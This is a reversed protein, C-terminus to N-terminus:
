RASASLRTREESHRMWLELIMLNWLITGYFSTRDTAHARVLHELSGKEFFGRQLSRPSLVLERMLENLKADTRLWVPIPLGFGHKTKTLIEQPLLDAYADKFFSRLRRGRMRIESPIRSAFEVLHHDLFPFRVLVGNAETMRTVKFLDNDSIALKLDLYLQRDLATRGRAREYHFHMAWFPNYSAEATRLFDTRFLQEIPLVKFTGYSYLRDPYPIMARQIYKKGKTFPDFPLLTALGFVLPKLLPERIWGPLERYYDFVRQAAYRENGAFIEDGGDGAYLTDVGHERAIKSCFYTPVASANAFPEDFHHVIQPIAEFVDSPTVFYEVHKSDFAKAAIRAYEIENFRDVGFGISFSTVPSGTVQTLVGTVTSSDVGGSLFTGISRGPRDGNARISMARSFHTKLQRALEAEDASDPNSFDIDWYSSLAAEGGRWSLVQGPPLKKVERYITQPSAIYSSGAVEIIGRPDITKQLALPCRDLASMRSAFVLHTPCAHYVLSHVRFQDTALYAREDRGDWIALAFEGDLRKVMDMGIQLYLRLLAAAADRRSWTPSLAATDFLSGHFVLAVTAGQVQAQALGGMRGPFPQAGFATGGWVGSAAPEAAGPGLAHVMPLLQEATAIEHRGSTVIGCIGAM